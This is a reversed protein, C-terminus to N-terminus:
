SVKGDAGQIPETTGFNGKVTKGDEKQETKGDTKIDVKGINEAKAKISKLLKDKIDTAIEWRDTRINYAPNVGKGKETFLLPASDKIPEMGNQLRNMKEEMTEGKVPEREVKLLTQKYARVKYM